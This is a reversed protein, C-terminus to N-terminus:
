GQATFFVSRLLPVNECSVYVCLGSVASREIQPLDILLSTLRANDDVSGGRKKKEGGSGIM